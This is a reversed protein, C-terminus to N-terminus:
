RRNKKIINEKKQKKPEFWEVGYTKCEKKSWGLKLAMSKLLDDDELNILHKQFEFEHSSFGFFKKVSDFLFKDDKEAKLYKPIRSNIKLGMITKLLEKNKVVLMLRDIQSVLEANHINFSMWRNLIFLKNDDVNDLDKKILNQYSIFM